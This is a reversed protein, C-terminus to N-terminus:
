VVNSGSDRGCSGGDRCWTLSARLGCIVVIRHAVRLEGSSGDAMVM